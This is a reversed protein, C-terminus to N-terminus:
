FIELPRIAVLLIIALISILALTVILEILTFSNNGKIKFREIM